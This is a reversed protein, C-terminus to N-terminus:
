FVGITDADAILEYVEPDDFTLADLDPRSGTTQEILDCSDSLVSLMRLGLLDIKVLGAEELSDKDWQVVVRDPMTAPETPLREALRAGTIVMGGNHIGLHRPFGDIQACLDLLQQWPESKGEVQEGIKGADWTELSKAARDIVDPPLGLAKGVDRLASRARFTVFTCAM